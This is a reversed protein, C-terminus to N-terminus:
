AGGDAEPLVRQVIDAPIAGDDPGLHRTLAKGVAASFHSLRFPDDVEQGAGLAGAYGDNEVLILIALAPPHAQTAQLSRHIDGSDCPVETTTSVRKGGARM